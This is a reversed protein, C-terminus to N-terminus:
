FTVADLQVEEYVGDGKYEFFRVDDRTYMIYDEDWYGGFCECVPEGFLFERFDILRQKFINM